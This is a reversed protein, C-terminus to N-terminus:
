GFSPSRHRHRDQFHFLGQFLQAEGAYEGREFGAARPASWCDTRGRPSRRDAALRVRGAACVIVRCIGAVSRAVPAHRRPRTRSSTCDAFVFLVQKSSFVSLNMASPLLAIKTALCAGALAVDRLGDRVGGHAFSKVDAVDFGVLQEVIKCDGGGFRRALLFSKFGSISASRNTSSSRNRRRFIAVSDASSSCAIRCRRYESRRLQMIVVFRTMSSQLLHRAVGREGGRDEIPEQM